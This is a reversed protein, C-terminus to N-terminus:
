MKWMFHHTYQTHDPQKWTKRKDKCLPWRGDSHTQVYRATLSSASHRQEKKLKTLFGYDAETCVATRIQVPKQCFWNQISESQMQEKRPACKSTCCGCMSWLQTLWTISFELNTNKKYRLMTPFQGTNRNLLDVNKSTAVTCLCM